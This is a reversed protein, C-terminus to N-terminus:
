ILYLNINGTLSNRNIDKLSREWEQEDSVAYLLTADSLQLKLENEKVDHGLIILSVFIDRDRLLRIVSNLKAKPTENLILAVTRRQDTTEKIMEDAALRLATEAFDDDHSARVRTVSLLVRDIFKKTETDDKEIKQFRSSLRRTPKSPDYLITAISEGETGKTVAEMTNRIIDKYLPGVSTQRGIAFLYM